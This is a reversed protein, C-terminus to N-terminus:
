PPASVGTLEARIHPRGAGSTSKCGISIEKWRNAMESTVYMDSHYVTEASDGVEKFLSTAERRGWPDYREEQMAEHTPPKLSRRRLAREMADARHITYRCRKALSGSSHDLLRAVARMYHEAGYPGYWTPFGQAAEYQDGAAGDIVVYLLGGAGGSRAM